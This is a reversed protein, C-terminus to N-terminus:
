IAVEAVKMGYAQLLPALDSQPRRVAGGCEAVNIREALDTVTFARSSKRERPPSMTPQGEKESLRDCLIKAVISLISSDKASIWHM